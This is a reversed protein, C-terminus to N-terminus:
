KMPPSNAELGHVGTMQDRGAQDAFALRYTLTTVGDIEHLDIPCLRVEEGYPAITKRVHEARAM